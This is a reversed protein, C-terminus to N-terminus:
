LKGYCQPLKDLVRQPTGESGSPELHWYFLIIAGLIFYSLLLTPPEGNVACTVLAM